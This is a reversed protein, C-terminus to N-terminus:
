HSEIALFRLYAKNLSEFIWGRDIKEPRMENQMKGVVELMVCAMCCRIGGCCDVERSLKQVLSRESDKSQFTRTAHWM